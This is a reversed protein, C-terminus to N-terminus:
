IAMLLKVSFVCEIMAAFQLLIYDQNQIIM